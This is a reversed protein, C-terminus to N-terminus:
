CAYMALDTMVLEGGKVNKGDLFEVIEVEVRIDTTLRRRSSPIPPARM